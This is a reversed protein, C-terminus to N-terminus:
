KAERSGSSVVRAARAVILLSPKELWGSRFCRRSMKAPPQPSIRSQLVCPDYNYKGIESDVYTLGTAAASPALRGSTACKEVAGHLTAFHMYREHSMIPKPPTACGALFLINAVCIVVRASAM